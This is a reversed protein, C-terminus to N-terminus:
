KLSNLFDNVWKAVIDKCGLGFAIAFGAGISLLIISVAQTVIGKGVRLQELAIAIAFIILITKVIQTLLNAKKVGANKAATSVFSGLISALFSGVALVLLASIINPIYAILKSMLGVAATFKLAQAATVAVILVFLWYVITGIIESLSSRIEGVELMKAFGSKESVVDIKSFKLIRVIINALIKSLFLGVVLIVIAAIVNPVYDWIKIAMAAIPEKIPIMWNKM